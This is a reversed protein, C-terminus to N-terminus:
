VTVTGVFIVISFRESLEGSAVTNKGILSVSRSAFPEILTLAPVKSKCPVSLLSPPTVIAELRSHSFPASLPFPETLTSVEPRTVM